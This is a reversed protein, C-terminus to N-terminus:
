CSVEKRDEDADEQQSPQLPRWSAKHRYFRQRHHPRSSEEPQQNQGTSEQQQGSVTHQQWQQAEAEVVGGDTSTHQPRPHLQLLPQSTPILPVVGEEKKAASPPPLLVHTHSSSRRAAASHQTFLRHADVRTTCKAAAGGAATHQPVM